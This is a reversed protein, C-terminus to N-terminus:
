SRGGNNLGKGKEKKEVKTPQVVNKDSKPKEKEVPKKEGPKEVPKKEGPKEVPKKEGPKEVPKKEGPKEVPKEPKKTKLIAKLKELTQHLKDAADLWTKVQPNTATHRAEDYYWEKFDFMMNNIVFCLFVRVLRAQELKKPSKIDGM